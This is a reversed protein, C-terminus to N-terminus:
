GVNRPRMPSGSSEFSYADTHIDSRPSVSLFMQRDSHVPQSLLFIRKEANSAFKSCRTIGVDPNTHRFKSISFLQKFQHKGHKWDAMIFLATKIATYLYQCDESECLWYLGIGGLRQIGNHRFWRTLSSYSLIDVKPM